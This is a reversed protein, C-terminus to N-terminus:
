KFLARPAQPFKAMLEPTEMDSPYVYTKVKWAGRDKHLIAELVAARTPKRKMESCKTSPQAM